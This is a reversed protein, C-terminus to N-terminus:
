SYRETPYRVSASKTKSYITLASTLQSPSYGHPSTSQRRQQRGFTRWARRTPIAHVQLTYVGANSSELVAHELAASAVRHFSNRRRNVSHFRGAGLPASLGNSVDRFHCALRVLQRKPNPHAPQRPGRLQGSTAARHKGYRLLSSPGAAEAPPLRSAPAAPLDSMEM